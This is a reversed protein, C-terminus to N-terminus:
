TNLSEELWASLMRRERASGNSSPALFHNYADIQRDAMPADVLLMDVFLDIGL